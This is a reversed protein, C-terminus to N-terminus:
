PDSDDAACEWGATACAVDFVSWSVFAAILLLTVITTALIKM